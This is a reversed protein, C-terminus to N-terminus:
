SHSSCRIEKDLTKDVGLHGGYCSKHAETMVHHRLKPPVYLLRGQFEVWSAQRRCLNPPTALEVLAKHDSNVKFVAGELDKRNQPVPWQQIAQVKADDMRVGEPGMTHGLYGVEKLGFVCESQKCYLKQDRLQQLM